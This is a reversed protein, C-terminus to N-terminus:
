SRRELGGGCPAPARRWVPRGALALLRGAYIDGQKNNDTAAVLQLARAHGARPAGGGDGAVLRRGHESVAHRRSPRRACCPEHRRNGGRHRLSSACRPSPRFLVKAGGHPKAGTRGASRGAPSLGWRCRYAGGMSGHPGRAPRQGRDRRPRRARSAALTPSIAGPRRDAGHSAAGPRGFVTPLPCSQARPRPVRPAPGTPYACLALSVPSMM